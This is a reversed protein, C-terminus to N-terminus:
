WTKARIAADPRRIRVRADVAVCGESLGLVPNLDLEAVSPLDVGLRSLRHVIDALAAADSPPAGRFGAVLRGAWRSHSGLGVGFAITMLGTVLFNAVQVWGLDGNALLSWPHRALDFGPRTLAQALSVSVYLPGAIVGYGLLSKTTRTAPACTVTMTM